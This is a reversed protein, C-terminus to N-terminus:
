SRRVLVGAGIPVSAGREVIQAPNTGQDYYVMVMADARDPSEFGRDMYDDKSELVLQGKKNTYYRRTSLQRALRTDKPGLNCKRSKVLQGFEWYAETIKNEFKQPNAPRGHNHFEIVQKRDDKTYFKHLVGQGIGTADPVHWCDDNSWGSSAQLRFGHEVAESPERKVFIGRGVIANGSRQYCVSEDGGFRAFDYALQKAPKKGGRRPMAACELMSTTFCAAVDESSMVCDPDQSPFNGLVSVAYVDSERGFEREIAKNREPDVIEPPSEEANLTLTTWEDAESNFCDFFDCDRTNPNGIQLFLSDPNSLTTKIARCIARPVGSAEEAIFTLRAQHYGQFNEERTATALKVGWDDRGGVVIKSRTCVIFKQLIPHAVALRRRAEVLWVDKCQRMTPSTVIALADVDQIVRWLGGIVSVTTKGPGKGSKCAIRRRPNLHEPSHQADQIAQLVLKQQWTPEFNMLRCFAFIDPKIERYIGEFAKGLRGM